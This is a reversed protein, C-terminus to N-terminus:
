DGKRYALRDSPYKDTGAIFWLALARTILDNNEDVIQATLDTNSAHGFLGRVASFASSKECAIFVADSIRTKVSTCLLTTLYLGVEMEGVERRWTGSSCALLVKAVADPSAMGVDECAVLSIRNFFRKKDKTILTYAANIATQVEGRRIAKHLISLWIWVDGPLLQPQYCYNVTVEDQLKQLLENM